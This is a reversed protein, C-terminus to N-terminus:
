RKNITPHLSVINKEQKETIECHTKLHDDKYGNDDYTTFDSNYTDTRSSDGMIIDQNYDDNNYYDDNNNFGNESYDNNNSNYNNNYGDYNYNYNNLDNYNNNDQVEESLVHNNDKNV